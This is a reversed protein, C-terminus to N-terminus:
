CFGGKEHPGEHEICSGIGGGSGGHSYGRVVDSRLDLVFKQNAQGVCRYLVLKGDARNVSLCYGPNDHYRIEGASTLKWKQTGGGNCEWAVIPNWDQQAGFQNDICMAPRNWDHTRFGLTLDGHGGGNTLDTVTVVSGPDNIDCNANVVLQNGNNSSQYPNNICLNQEESDHFLTFYVQFASAPGAWLATALVVACCILPKTVLFNFPITTM